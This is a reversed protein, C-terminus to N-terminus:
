WKTDEGTATKAGSAGPDGYGGDLKRGDALIVEVLGGGHRGDKLPHAVVKIHDGPKLSLRTWGYRKLWGNNPGEFSYRQVEGEATTVDVDLFTHPNTWQFRVVVGEYTLKQDRDYMAFTHHAEVPTALLAIAFLCLAIALARARWVVSATARDDPSFLAM